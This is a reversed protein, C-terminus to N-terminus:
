QRFMLDSRLIYKTGKLVPRGEHLICESGHRHLLATGRTLPVIIEEKPKGLSEPYFVTQGGVVGQAEGTLYILLTWESQAGTEPDRVSDDYHRGFHEGQSYRYLRINTNLSHPHKTLRTKRSTSPLEPLHPQLISFLQQAFDPSRISLRHNMRDAEGRKKPPTAELPLQEVFSVFSKCEEPSLLSEILIIQDQELVVCELSEKLKVHPFPPYTTEKCLSEAQAKLKRPKLKLPM